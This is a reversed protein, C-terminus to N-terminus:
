PLLWKKRAYSTGGIYSAFKWHSVLYAAFVSMLTVIFYLKFMGVNGQWYGPEFRFLLWIFLPHCLFIFLTQQALWKLVAEGWASKFPWRGSSALLFLFIVLSYVLVDPKLSSQGTHLFRSEALLVMLLILSFGALVILQNRLKNLKGEYDIALWMGFVFYVLWAPFLIIYTLPSGPLHILGVQNLYLLTQCILSILLSIILAPAPQKVVWYRLGVYLGYLQIIIPFFYLHVYGTGTLLALLYQGVMGWNASQGAQWNTLGVYVLSWLIYPWLVRSLRHRLYAGAPRWKQTVEPLFNVLGSIIVFVPVAFRMTQNLAFALRGSLTYGSTVHIAIVALAAAVRIFDIEGRYSLGGPKTSSAINWLKSTM